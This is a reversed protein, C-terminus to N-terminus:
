TKNMNVTVLLLLLYVGAVSWGRLEGIFFLDKHNESFWMDTGNQNVTRMFGTAGPSWHSGCHARVLSLCLYFPQVSPKILWITTKSCCFSSKALNNNSLEFWAWQETQIGKINAPELLKHYIQLKHSKFAAAGATYNLENLQETYRVCM